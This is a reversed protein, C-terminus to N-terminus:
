VFTKIEKKQTIASVLIKGNESEKSIKVSGKKGVMASFVFKGDVYFSVVKGCYKPDFLFELSNGTDKLQYSIEEGFSKYRPLVEIKIGLKKEIRSINEGDKGILRGIVRNDVEV